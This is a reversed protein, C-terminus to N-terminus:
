QFEKVADELQEIVQAIDTEDNGDVLDIKTKLVSKYRSLPQPMYTEAKMTFQYKYVNVARDGPDIEINNGISELKVGIEWSVGKVKIYALPTLKKMIQEFIQNMDERYLTWAYLTYSVNLPIGRSVGFVTDRDYKEKIAFGPKGSRNKLFDKAKHYTYRSLDMQCDSQHIALIPLTIRDVVLSNDKRYNPSLVALVAKEQTGWIIPVQHLKGADDQVVVDSFMDMMAEDTGRVAKSYRHLTTRDPEEGMGKQENVIYGKQMPDCLQSHGVNMKSLTFDDLWDVGTGSTHNLNVCGPEDSCYGPTPDAVVNKIPGPDACQELSM